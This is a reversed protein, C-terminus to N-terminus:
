PRSLLGPLNSDMFKLDGKGGDMTWDDQLYLVALYRCLRDSRIEALPLGRLAGKYYELQEQMGFSDVQRLTLPLTEKSSLSDANVRFSGQALQTLEKARRQMEPVDGADVRDAKVKYDLLYDLTSGRLIFDERASFQATDISKSAQENGNRVVAPWHLRMRYRASYRGSSPAFPYNRVLKDPIGLTGELVKSDYAVSYLKEKLDV